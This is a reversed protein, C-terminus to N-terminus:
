RYAELSKKIMYSSGKLADEADELFNRWNVTREIAGLGADIQEGHNLKGIKWHDVYPKLRDIVELAEQPSIVPELSVWTFVEREHAIQLAAERDEFPTANPEIGDEVYNWDEVFVVTTGFKWGNRKFLDMDRVGAMPNKTLLQVNQFKYRELMLLVSLTRSHETGVPYPDCTFCLHVPETLGKLKKCDGELQGLSWMPDCQKHFEERANEKFKWPPMLPVFCYRCNHPCGKYINIAWGDGAGPASEAFEQAKGKPRYIVNTNM